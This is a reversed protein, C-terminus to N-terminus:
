GMGHKRRARNFLDDDDDDDDLTDSEDLDNESHSASSSSSEDKKAGIKGQLQSILDVPFMKAPNSWKTGPSKNSNPKKQAESIGSLPDSNKTSEKPLNSDSVNNKNSTGPELDEANSKEVVHLKSMGDKLEDVVNKALNHGRDVPKKLSFLDEDDDSSTVSFLNRKSLKKEDKMDKVNREDKADKVSRVDRVESLIKKNSPPINSTKKSRASSFLDDSDSESESVKKSVPSSVQKSITPQTPTPLQKRPRPTPRPTPKPMEIQPKVEPEVIPEEKPQSSFPSNAEYSDQHNPHVSSSPSTISNILPPISDPNTAFTQIPPSSPSHSPEVAESNSRSKQNPIEKSQKRKVVVFLDQEDDDDDDFINQVKKVDNVSSDNKLGLRSELQSSLNKPLIRTFDSRKDEVPKFFDDDDDSSVEPRLSPEPPKKVSKIDNSVAVSKPPATPTKTDLKPQAVSPKTASVSPAIATKKFKAPSFLDDSDSEDVDKSTPSSSQKKFSEKPQPPPSLKMKPKPNPKPKNIPPKIQPQSSNLPDTKHTEQHNSQVSPTSSTTSSLPSISEPAKESSEITLSSKSQSPEPAQSNTKPKQNPNEVSQKRKVVVFLDQEDDDDDGFISRAKEMDRKSSESKLGLRSELQNTLNEPLIRTYDSRKNEVPKFFDDDSTDDQCPEPGSPLGREESSPQRNISGVEPNNVITLTNTRPRNPASGSKMSEIEEDNTVVQFLDNSDDSSGSRDSLLEKSLNLEGYNLDKPVQSASSPFEGSLKSFSEAYFEQSGVIAPLSVKTFKNNQMIKALAEEVIDDDEDSENAEGTACKEPLEFNSDVFDLNNRICDQIVSLFRQENEVKTQSPCSSSHIESSSKNIYSDLEEDRVRNEIFQSDALFQFENILNKVRSSRIQSEYALGNLKGYTQESKLILDDGLSKLLKLVKINDNLSWRDSRLQDCSVQEDQENVAPNSGVDSLSSKFSMM